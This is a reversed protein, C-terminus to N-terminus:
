FSFQQDISRALQCLVRIAALMIQGGVCNFIYPCGVTRRLFCDSKRVPARVPTMLGLVQLHPSGGFPIRVWFSAECCGPVHLWAGRGACRRSAKWEREPPESFIALHGLDVGEIEGWRTFLPKVAGFRSRRAACPSGENRAFAMRLWARGVTGSQLRPTRGRWPMACRDANPRAASMVAGGVELCGHVCGCTDVTSIQGRPDWAAGGGDVPEHSADVTKRGHMMGMFGPAPTQRAPNMRDPPRAFKSRHRSLSFGPSRVFLRNM